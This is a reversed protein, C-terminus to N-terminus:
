IYLEGETIVVGAVGYQVYLVLPVIVVFNSLFLLVLLSTLYSIQFYM